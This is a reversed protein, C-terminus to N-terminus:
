AAESLEYSSMVQLRGQLSPDEAVLEDHLQWAEAESKASLGEGHLTLDTGNVVRFEPEEVDVKAIPTGGIRRSVAFKNKTVAGAGSFMSFVSGFLRVLGARITLGRKRHVYSLEYTVDKDVNAGTQSSDGTSFRLGSRM